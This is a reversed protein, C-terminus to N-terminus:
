PMNIIDRFCGLDLIVGVGIYMIIYPNAHPQRVLGDRDVAGLHRRWMHSM